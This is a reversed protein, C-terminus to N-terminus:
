KSQMSFTGLKLLVLGVSWDTAKNPRCIMRGWAGSNVVPLPKPSHSWKMELLVSEGIKSLTVIM